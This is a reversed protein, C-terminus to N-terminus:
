PKLKTELTLIDAEVEALKDARDPRNKLKSRLPKLNALLRRIEGADTLTALDPGLTPEPVVVRGAELDYSLQIRQVIALLQLSADLRQQETPLLELSAHLYDRDAFLKRRQRRVDDAEPTPEPPSIRPKSAVFAVVPTKESAIPVIGVVLKALERALVERTYETCAGALLRKLVGSRGHAEFLAVGAAYERFEGELWERIQKVSCVKRTDKGDFLVFFADRGNALVSFLTSGKSRM